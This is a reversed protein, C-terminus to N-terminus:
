EYNHTLTTYKIYLTKHDTKCLLLCVSLCSSSTRYISWSEIVTSEYLVAGRVV